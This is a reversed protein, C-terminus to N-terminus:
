SRHWYIIEGAGVGSGCKLIARARESARRRELGTHVGLGLNLRGCKPQLELVRNKLPKALNMIRVGGFHRCLLGWGAVMRTSILYLGALLALWFVVRVARRVRYYTPSRM